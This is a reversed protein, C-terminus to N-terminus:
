AYDAVFINGSGDVAVTFPNVFGSGLTIPTGNGAPIEKKVASNGNDAM